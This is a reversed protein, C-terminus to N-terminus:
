RKSMRHLELPGIAFDEPEISERVDWLRRAHRLRGYAETIDDEAGSWAAEVLVVGEPKTEDQLRMVLAGGGGPSHLAAVFAESETGLDSRDIKFTVHIM